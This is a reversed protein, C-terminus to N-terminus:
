EVNYTCVVIIFLKINGDLEKYYEPDEQLAWRVLYERLEVAMITEKGSYGIRGCTMLFAEVINIDEPKQALSELNGADRHLAAIESLLQEGMQLAMGGIVGNVKMYEVYRSLQETDRQLMADCVHKRIGVNHFLGDEDLADETVEILMDGSGGFAQQWFAGSDMPIESSQQLKRIALVIKSDINETVDQLAMSDFVMADGIDDDNDGMGDKWEGNGNADEDEEDDEHYWMSDRRVADDESHSIARIAGSRVRGTALDSERMTDEPDEEDASEDINDLVSAMPFLPPIYESLIGDGGSGGGKIHCHFTLPKKFNAKHQQIFVTRVGIKRLLPSSTSALERLTVLIQDVTPLEPASTPQKELVPRKHSHAMIKSRTASKQMHRSVQSLAKQISEDEPEMPAVIVFCSDIEDMDTCSLLQLQRPDAKLARALGELVDYMSDMYPVLQIRFCIWSSPKIFNKRADTNEPEIAGMDSTDLQKRSQSPENSKSTVTDMNVSTIPAVRRVLSARPISSQQCAYAMAHRMTKLQLTVPPDELVLGGLHLTLASKDPNLIERKLAMSQGDSGFSELPASIGFKRQHLSLADMLLAVSIDDGHNGTLVLNRLSKCRDM